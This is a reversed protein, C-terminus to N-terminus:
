DNHGSFIINTELFDVAFPLHCSGVSISIAKQKQSITYPFIISIKSQSFNLLLLQTWYPTSHSCFLISAPSPLNNSCTPPLETSASFVLASDSSLDKKLTGQFYVPKELSRMAWSISYAVIKRSYKPFTAGSYWFVKSWEHKLSVRQLTSSESFYFNAICHVLNLEETM